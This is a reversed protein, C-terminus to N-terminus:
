RGSTPIVKVNSRAFWATVGTSPFHVQIPRASIEKDVELVVGRVGSAQWGTQPRSTCPEFRDSLDESKRLVVTSNVFIRPRSM